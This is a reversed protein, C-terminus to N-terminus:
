TRRIAFAGPGAPRSARITFIASRSSWRAWAVIGDSAGGYAHARLCRSVVASPTVYRLLTPHTRDLTMHFSSTVTACRGSACGCDHSWSKAHLYRAPGFLDRRDTVYRSRGPEACDVRVQLLDRVGLGIQNGLSLLLTCSAAVANPMCSFSMRRCVTAPSDFVSAWGCTHPRAGERNPRPTAATCGYVLRGDPLRCSSIQPVLRAAV